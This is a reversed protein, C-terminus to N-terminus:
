RGGILEDGWGLIIFRREGSSDTNIDIKVSDQDVSGVILFRNRFHRFLNRLDALPRYVRLLVLRNAFFADPDIAAEVKGVMTNGGFLTLLRLAISVQRCTM